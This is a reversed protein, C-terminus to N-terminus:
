GGDGKKRGLGSFMAEQMSQLVRLNQKTIDGFVALPGTEIFQSMQKQWLEQQRLFVAMSEELYAALFGQTAHGYSRIVQTLFENSFLPRGQAEQELIIQMLIGRTLDEGTKADELRINVGDVVLRRIDELTVYKSAETDYLRRNPYKKILRETEM